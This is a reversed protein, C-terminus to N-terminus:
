TCAGHPCSISDTNRLFLRNNHHQFSTRISYLTDSDEYRGKEGNVSLIGMGVRDFVWENSSDREIFLGLVQYALENIRM